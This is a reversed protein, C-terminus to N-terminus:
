WYIFGVVGCAILGIGLLIYFIRANRGFRKVFIRAGDTQFYWDLNLVSATISFVGLVIFLVLIFYESPQM